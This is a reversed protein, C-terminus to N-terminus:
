GLIVIDASEDFLRETALNGHLGLPGFRNEWGAQDDVLRGHHAGGCASRSSLDVVFHVPEQHLDALM